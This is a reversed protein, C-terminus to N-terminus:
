GPDDRERRKLIYSDMIWGKDRRASERKERIEDAVDALRGSVLIEDPMGLYAGWWIDMDEDVDGYANQGDLMVAVSGASGPLDEALRRGTTITVPRGIANLVIRHRAALVQLSTIGPIVAYDLAIKGGAAIRDIIRLTSDYLMPDGWVLFAGTEDEGLEHAILTEHMEEIAAHWEDVDREYADSRNRKPVSFPVIRYSDHRMFRELITRRLSALETKEDGKDPIFFVSARNMAEVAEITVHDPNGAGIGIVLLKRKLM